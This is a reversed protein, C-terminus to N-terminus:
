LWRIHWRSAESFLASGSCKTSDMTHVIERIHSSDRGEDFFNRLFANKVEIWCTFLDQHYSSSGTRLTEMKHTSSSSAFFITRLSEMPKLLLFWIRSGSCITWLIRMNAYYQDPRNYDALMILRAVQVNDDGVVEADVAITDVYLDPIGAGHDDLRQGAANRLHGEQDHRWERRADSCFDCGQRAFLHRDINPYFHRDDTAWLHRDVSRLQQRDIRHM